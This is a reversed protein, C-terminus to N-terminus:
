RPKKDVLILGIVAGVAVVGVLIRMQKDSEQQLRHLETSVSDTYVRASDLTTM